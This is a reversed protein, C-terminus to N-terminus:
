QAFRLISLVWEWTHRIGSLNQDLRKQNPLPVAGTCTRRPSPHHLIDSIQIFKTHRHDIVVQFIKTTAAGASFLPGISQSGRESTHEVALVASIKGTRSASGFLFKPLVEIGQLPHGRKHRRPSRQDGCTGM